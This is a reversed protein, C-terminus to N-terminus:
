VYDRFVVPWTVEEGSAWWLPRGWLFVMMASVGGRPVELIVVEPLDGDQRLREHSLDGWKWRV